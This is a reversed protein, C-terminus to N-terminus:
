LKFDKLHTLQCFLDNVITYESSSEYVMNWNWEYIGSAPFDTEDFLIDICVIPKVEIYYKTDIQKEDM